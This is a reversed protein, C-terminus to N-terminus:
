DDDLEDLAKFLDYVKSTPVAWHAFPKKLLKSNSKIDRAIDIIKIMKDKEM